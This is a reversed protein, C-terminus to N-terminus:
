QVAMSIKDAVVRTQENFSRCQSTLVTVSTTHTQVDPSHLVHAPPVPPSMSQLDPNQSSYASLLPPGTISCITHECFIEARQVHTLFAGKGQLAQQKSCKPTM